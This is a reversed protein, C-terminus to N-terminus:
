QMYPTDLYVYLAKKSNEFNEKIYQLMMTTKGLGRQGLIGISKLDWNIKNYLYRKKNLSVKSLLKEQDEFLKQLNLFVDKKYIHLTLNVYFNIYTLKFM